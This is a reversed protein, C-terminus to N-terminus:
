SVSHKDRARAVAPRQAVADAVRVVNPFRHAFARGDEDWSAIMQLYIDAASFHDGVLWAKAELARDAVEWQELLLARANAKIKGSDAAAPIYREPFYYRNYNPYITDTLFLLWQYYVARLPENPQPALGAEAHQDVLYMVIGASEFVCQGDPLKMAPVRGYPHIKKYAPTFNEGGGTDVLVTEYPAGVEELIAMPAQSSSEPNWYLTYM